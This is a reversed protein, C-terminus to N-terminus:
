GVSKQEVLSRATREDTVLGKLYRGELVSKIARVKVKGGAVAVIRRNSIDERALALARNSLTTEVAKGADDFFHGLLEGVGGNRRIEEMEGKEIMGTAVLSAEREATGIGAILLDAAKGLDFVESIGKQGLLVTRDEVTNAFMPVPMVYAEAGTREALRHIVDHPNASFKRTLGGLLSVFRTKEASIRPLYEVCAALTRGHGVGILTDEGREIERKLFQAGAIGLAKLPLEEGDFDPVVECYDLGYRSSLDDELAVCESVEGDIYVKVLGEQNAKTILRHAKLSTLGLRKAVESQTLGGAYHLWAARTAMSTEDDRLLGNGFGVM